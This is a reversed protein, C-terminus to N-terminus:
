AKKRNEILSYIDKVTVSNKLDAANITVDYEVNVMAIIILANVSSWDFFDRFNSDPMLKGPVLDEFESEIKKIFDQIGIAM